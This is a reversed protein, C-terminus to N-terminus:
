RHRRCDKYHPARVKRTPGPFAVRMGQDFLMPRFEEPTSHHMVPSNRWSEINAEKGQIKQSWRVICVKDSAFTWDHFGEFAQFFLDAAKASVLNVFAYGLGCQTTFDIPLYIFDYLGKFGQANILDLLRTRNLNNPLNRMMVTTYEVDQSKGAATICSPGQVKANHGDQSVEKCPAVSDRPVLLPSPPVTQTQAGGAAALSISSMNPAEAFGAPLLGQFQVDPSFVVPMPAPILMMQIDPSFGMQTGACYDPVIFAVFKGKEWEGTQCQASCRAPDAASTWPTTNSSQHSVASLMEDISGCMNTLTPPTVSGTKQDGIMQEGIMCSPVFGGDDLFAVDAVNPATDYNAKKYTHMASTLGANVSDEKDPVISNLAANDEFPSEEYVCEERFHEEPDGLSSFDSDGEVTRSTMMGFSENDDSGEIDRRPYPPLRIGDCSRTRKLIDCADYVDNCQLFTNKVVVPLSSIQGTM